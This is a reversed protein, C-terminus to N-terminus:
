SRYDTRYQRSNGSLVRIQRIHRTGARTGRRTRSGLTGLQLSRGICRLPQTIVTSITNM